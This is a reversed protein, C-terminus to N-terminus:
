ERFVVPVICATSIGNARFSRRLATTSAKVGADHLIRVTGTRLAALGLAKADRRIESVSAILDGPLARQAALEFPRVRDGHYKWLGARDAGFLEVSEDLIDEFLAPLDITGSLEAAIRRLAAGADRGGARRLRRTRTTVPTPSDVVAEPRAPDAALVVPAGVEVSLAKQSDGSGLDSNKV